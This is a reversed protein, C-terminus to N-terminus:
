ALCTGAMILEFDRDNDELSFRESQPHSNAYVDVEAQTYEKKKHGFNKSSGSNKAATSASACRQKYDEASLDDWVQCHFLDLQCHLAANSNGETPWCM